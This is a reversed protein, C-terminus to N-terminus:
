GRPRGLQADARRMRAAAAGSTLAPRKRDAAREGRVGGHAERKQGVDVGIEFRQIRAERVGARQAPRASHTGRRSRRSRRRHPPRRRAPRGLERRAPWEDDLAVVVVGELMRGAIEVVLRLRREIPRVRRQRRSCRATGARGEAARARLAARGRGRKRPGARVSPTRRCRAPRALTGRPDAADGNVNLPWTCRAVVRNRSAARFSSPTGASDRFGSGRRPDAAIARWRRAGDALRAVPAGRGTIRHEVRRAALDREIADWVIRVGGRLLDPARPQRIREGVPRLRCRISCRLRRVCTLVGDVVSELASLGILIM